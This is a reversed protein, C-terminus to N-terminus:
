LEESLITKCDEILEGLFKGGLERTRNKGRFPRYYLRAHAHVFLGNVCSHQTSFIVHEKKTDKTTTLGYKETEKDTNQVNYVPCEYQMGYFRYLDKIGDIYPDMQDVFYPSSEINGGDYTALINHAHNYRIAAVHMALKCAGCIWPIYFTRYRILRRWMGSFYFRNFLSNIEEEYGIVRKEGFIQKLEATVKRHKGIKGMKNHHFTLLHVAEAQELAKLASLTSDPGGSFLVSIGKTV